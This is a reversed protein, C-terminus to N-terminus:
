ATAIPGLARSPHKPSNKPGKALHAHSPNLPRYVFPFKGTHSARRTVEDKVAYDGPGPLQKATHIKWDLDSKPNSLNFRGTSGSREVGEASYHGPGPLQKATHIKWDIDSKPNSM